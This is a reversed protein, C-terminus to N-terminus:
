AAGEPRTRLPTRTGVAIGKGTVTAIARLAHVANEENLSSFVTGVNCHHAGTISLLLQLYARESGSLPLSWLQKGLKEWDCWVSGDTEIVVVARRVDDRDLLTRHAALMGVAATNFCSGEAWATLWAGLETKTPRHVTDSM